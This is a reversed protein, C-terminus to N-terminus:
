IIFFVSILGTHHGYGMGIGVAMTEITIISM